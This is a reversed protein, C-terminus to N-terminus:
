AKNADYLEIEYGTAIDDNSYQALSWVGLNTLKVYAIDSLKIDYFEHRGVMATGSLSGKCMRVRSRYPYSENWLDYEKVNGDKLIVILAANEEISIGYADSVSTLQCAFNVTNLIDPSEELVVDSVAILKDSILINGDNFEEVHEFKQSFKELTEEAVSARQEAEAISNRAEKQVSVSIAASVLVCAVVTSAIIVAAKVKVKRTRKQFTKEKDTIFQQCQQGLIQAYDLFPIARGNVPVAAEVMPSYRKLAEFVEDVANMSLIPTKSGVQSIFAGLMDRLNCVSVNEPVNTVKLICEPNTFVVYSYVPIGPFRKALANIHNRNQLVPNYFHSNTTTRFYQTWTKDAANGYITGKYHKVEFVYFGTEHILLLDIETSKGMTNPIEINMLIKCVGPVYPFLESFVLYEGYYGKGREDWLIKQQEIDVGTLNKYTVDINEM